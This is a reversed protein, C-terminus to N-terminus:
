GKWAGSLSDCSKPIPPMGGIGAECNPRRPAVSAPETTPLAIRIGVARRAHAVHRALRDRLLVGCVPLETEYSCSRDSGTDTGTATGARAHVRVCTRYRRDRCVWSASCSASFVPRSTVSSALCWQCTPLDQWERSVSRPAHHRVARSARRTTVDAWRARRPRPEAAASWSRQRALTSYVTSICACIVVSSNRPRTSSRRRRMTARGVWAARPPTYM